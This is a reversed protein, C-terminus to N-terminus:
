ADAPELLVGLERLALVEDSALARSLLAQAEQTKGAARAERGADPPAVQARAEMAGDQQAREAPARGWLGSVKPDQPSSKHLAELSKQASVLDSAAVQALAHGYSNPPAQALLKAEDPLLQSPDIARYAEDLTSQVAIIKLFESVGRPDRAAMY